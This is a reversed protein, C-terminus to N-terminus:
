GWSPWRGGFDDARAIREILELNAARGSVAADLDVEGWLAGRAEGSRAATLIAFQLAAAAMSTQQRLEAM